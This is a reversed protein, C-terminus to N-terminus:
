DGSKEEEYTPIVVEKAPKTKTAAKVPPFLYRFMSIKAEIARLEEPDMSEKAMTKYFLQQKQMFANMEVSVRYKEWLEVDRTIYAIITSAEPPALGRERKENILQEITKGTHLVLNLLEDIYKNTIKM